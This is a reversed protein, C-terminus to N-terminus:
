PLCELRHIIPSEVTPALAPRLINHGFISFGYAEEFFVQVDAAFDPPDIPFIFSYITAAFRGKFWVPEESRDELTIGLKGHLFSFLNPSFGAGKAPGFFPWHVPFQRPRPSAGGGQATFFCIAAKFVAPRRLRMPGAFPPRQSTAWSSSYHGWRSRGPLANGRPTHSRPL